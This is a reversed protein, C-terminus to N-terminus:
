PTLDLRSEPSPRAATPRLYQFVMTRGLAIGPREIWAYCGWSLILLLPLSGVMTLLYGERGLDGFVRLSLWITFAFLNIHVLYISYSWRGVAVVIPNRFLWWLVTRLWSKANLRGNEMMISFVACGWIFIAMAASYIQGHFDRLASFGFMILFAIAAQILNRKGDMRMARRSAMGVFFYGLSLFLNAPTDWFGLAGACFVAILCLSISFVWRGIVSNKVFTLM